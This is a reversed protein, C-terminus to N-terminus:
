QTFTHMGIPLTKKGSKDLPASQTWTAKKRGGEMNKRKYKHEWNIRDLIGYRVDLWDGCHSSTWEECYNLDM